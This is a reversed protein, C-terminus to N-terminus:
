VPRSGAELATSTSVLMPGRHAQRPRRSVKKPNQSGETRQARAESQRQKRRATTARCRWSFRRVFLRARRGTRRAGGLVGAFVTTLRARLGLARRRRCAVVGGAEAAAGAVARRTPIAVLAPAGARRAAPQRLAPLGRAAAAHRLGEALTARALVFAAARVHRTFLQSGRPFACGARRADSWPSSRCIGGHLDRICGRSVM